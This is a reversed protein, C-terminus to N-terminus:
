LFLPVIHRKFLNDCVHRSVVAENDGVAKLYTDGYEAAVKYAVHLLQRTNIDYLPCSQDHRITQAIRKSDWTEFVNPSPLAARNIDIVSAYPGCLEDFRDYAKRYIQKVLNLPEKGSEALGILEELWTTGATKVHVGANHTEIAKRIGPYISFKDSGSHVSLKLNDPLGFRRVAQRIICIDDEFERNFQEVDGQYDVGKNFRGTFKPAITQAPIKNDAIAALIFFLEEPTQPEATEDMSVETIFSTPGKKEAIHQYIAAAQQVAFLYKEAITQLKEGTIVLPETMGDVQMEGTYSNYKEVFTEIDEQPAKTGIFDAVDLTFFDSHELFLDVNSMNIHDADVHYNETWGAALIAKDAEQRLDQQSTHVITHERHSKNWVIVIEVGKEHAKRIAELQANGQLGFRDGTGFSYKALKMAKEKNLERKDPNSLM